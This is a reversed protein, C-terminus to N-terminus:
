REGACASRPTQPSLGCALAVAAWVVSLNIPFPELRVYEPTDAPLGDRGPGSQGDPCHRCALQGDRGHADDDPVKGPPLWDGGSGRGRCSYAPAPFPHQNIQAVMLDTAMSGEHHQDDPSNQSPSMAGSGTGGFGDAAGFQDPGVGYPGVPPRQTREPRGAPSFSPWDGVGAGVARFDIRHLMRIGSRILREPQGSAGLIGKVDLVSRPHRTVCRGHQWVPASRPRSLAASQLVRVAGPHIAPLM